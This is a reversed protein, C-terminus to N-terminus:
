RWRQSLRAYPRRVTMASVGIVAAPVPGFSDGASTAPAGSM